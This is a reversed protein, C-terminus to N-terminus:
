QSLQVLVPAGNLKVRGTDWAPGFPGPNGSAGWPESPIGLLNRNMKGDSDLDQFMAVAIETADGLGCVQVSQVAADGAAVRLSTLPKKNFSEASVYVAIMLHGQQPRVGRLEIATCAPDAAHASGAAALVLPAAALLTRITPM